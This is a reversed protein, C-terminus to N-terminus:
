PNIEYFAAGFSHKPRSKHLGFARTIRANYGEFAKRGGCNM